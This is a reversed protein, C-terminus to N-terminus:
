ANRNSYLVGVATIQSKRMRILGYVLIGWAIVEIFRPISSLLVLFEGVTMGFPPQSNNESLSDLYRGLLPDYYYSLIRHVIMILFFYFGAKFSHKLGNVLVETEMTGCIDL